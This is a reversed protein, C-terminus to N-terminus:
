KQHSSSSSQNKFCEYGDYSTIFGTVNNNLVQLQHLASINKVKPAKAFFDDLGLDVNVKAIEGSTLLMLEVKSKKNENFANFFDDACNVTAKRSMVLRKIRHKVAAGIGDVTGKGHSAAFFNWFIKLNYEKELLRILAAIYKNKFQSSPGDTWIKLIKVTRPLNSLLKHLYAVITEKSHHTNDSIIAKSHSKKRHHLAATFVSVQFFHTIMLLM